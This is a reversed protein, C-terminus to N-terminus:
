ACKCAGNCVYCLVGLAGLCHWGALCQRICVTLDWPSWPVFWRKSLVLVNHNDIGTRLLGSLNPGVFSM